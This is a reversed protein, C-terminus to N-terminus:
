RRTPSSAPRSARASAHVADDEAQGRGAPHLRREHDRGRVDQRARDVRQDPRQVLHGPRRVTEVRMLVSAQYVNKQLSAYAFANIGGFLTVIIVIWKRRRLMTPSPRSSTRGPRPRATAPPRSAAPRDHTPPERYSTQLSMATRSPAALSPAEGEHNAPVAARRARRLAGDPERVHARPRRGRGPAERARRGCRRPAAPAPRARARRLRRRQRPGRRAPALRLPRARRRGSCLSHANVQLRAGRAVLDRALGDDAECRARASPMRSSRASAPTSSGGCATSSCPRRSRRARGRRAAHRRRRAHLARDRTRAGRRSPRPAGRRGRARRPTGPRRQACRACARPSSTRAAAAFRADVHPTTVVTTVGQQPSCTSCRTPRATTPPVMTSAPSCTRTCTWSPGPTCESTWPDGISALRPPSSCPLRASDAAKRVDEGRRM